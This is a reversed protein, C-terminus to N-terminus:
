NLVICLIFYDHISKFYIRYKGLRSGDSSAEPRTLPNLVYKFLYLLFIPVKDVTNGKGLQHFLSIPAFINNNIKWFEFLFLKLVVTPSVYYAWSYTARRGKSTRQLSFNDRIMFCFAHIIGTDNTLTPLCPPFIHIFFHHHTLATASNAVGRNPIRTFEEGTIMAKAFHNMVPAAQVHLYRLMADSRWSGVLKIHDHDINSCLLAMAGATRLSRASIDEKFFILQLVM